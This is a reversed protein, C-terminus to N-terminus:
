FARVGQDEDQERLKSMFGAIQSYPMAAHHVIPAIKAKKPLM